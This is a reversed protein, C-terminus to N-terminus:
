KVGVLSDQKDRVTQNCRRILKGIDSVRKKPLAAVFVPIADPLLSPHNFFGDNVFGDDRVTVSINDLTKVKM